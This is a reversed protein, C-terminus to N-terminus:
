KPYSAIPRLRRLRLLCLVSYLLFLCALHAIPASNESLSGGSQVISQYVKIFPTTPLLFSIWQLARPLSQIPWTYGTILFIPYTSFAMFQVNLLPYRFLSGIWQGMPILTLLFLLIVVSLSWESGRMPIRLISFNVNLFFFAYAGFLLLYFGGKGWLATSPSGGADQMWSDLRDKKREGAVSSSLGILLTQQLILALLGPLLFAGYSVRENFLPRYDLNVPMVEQMSAGTNLGQSQQLYQLRVGAGVTLCVQNLVMLLDSSPLFRAANVAVVVNGQQLSLIHGALGKEIYLYGQCNGRYMQERAQQLSPVMMVDAVQANDIQQTLMRSIYTHDEDVVALKVGQEEKNIYISGYFFAYLLPAILLTLLLSHDKGVLAAERLLLKWLRTMAKRGLRGPRGSRESREGGHQDTKKRM